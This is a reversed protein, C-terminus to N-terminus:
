WSDVLCIFLNVQVRRRRTCRREAMATRYTYMTNYMDENLFFIYREQVICQNCYVFHYLFTQWLNKETQLIRHLQVHMCPIAPSIICMSASIWIEFEFSPLFYLWTPWLHGMKGFVDIFWNSLAKVDLFVIVLVIRFALKVCIIETQLHMCTHIRM